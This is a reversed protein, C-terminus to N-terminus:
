ARDELDVTTKRHVDLSMGLNYLHNRAIQLNIHSDQIKNSCDKPIEYGDLEAAKVLNHMFVLQKTLRLILDDRRDM